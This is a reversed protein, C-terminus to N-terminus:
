RMQQDVLNTLIPILHINQGSPTPYDKKSTFIDNHELTILLKVFAVIMFIERGRALQIYQSLQKQCSLELLACKLMGTISM